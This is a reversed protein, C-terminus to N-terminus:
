TTVANEGGMETVTRGALPSVRMPVISRHLGAFERTSLSALVSSPGNPWGTTSKSPEVTTTGIAVRTTRNSMSPAFTTSVFRGSADNGPYPGSTSSKPGSWDPFETSTDASPLTTTAVSTSNNQSQLLGIVTITPHSAPAAVVCTSDVGVGVGDPKATDGLTEPSPRNTENTDM